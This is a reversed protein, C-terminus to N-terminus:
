VSCYSCNFPCGDSLKLVGVNLKEYLEWLGPQKMDPKINLYEWLPELNVGQVLFDAGLGEAHSSCLTVYNGGLIIKAKPCFKRIDEIVERVGQYWYTM